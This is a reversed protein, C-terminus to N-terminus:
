KRQMAEAMKKHEKAMARYEEAAKKYDKFLNSCHKALGPLPKGRNEYSAAMSAHSSAEAEMKEAQKQYYDAIKMHDEPTAATEILRNIEEEESATSPIERIESFIVFSVISAIVLPLLKTRMSLGEEM